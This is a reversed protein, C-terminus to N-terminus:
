RGMDGLQVAYHYGNEKHQFTSIPPHLPYINHSSLVLGCNHLWLIRGTGLLPETFMGGQCRIHM